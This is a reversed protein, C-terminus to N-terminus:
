KNGKFYRDYNIVIESKQNEEQKTKKGRHLICMVNVLTDFGEYSHRYNGM